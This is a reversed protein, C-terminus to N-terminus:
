RPNLTLTLRKNEIEQPLEIPELGDIYSHENCVYTSNHDIGLVCDGAKPKNIGDEAYETDPLDQEDFENFSWFCNACCKDM